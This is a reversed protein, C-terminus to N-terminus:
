FLQQAGVNLRLVLPQQVLTLLALIHSLRAARQTAVLLGYVFTPLATM